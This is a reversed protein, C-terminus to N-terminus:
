KFLYSTMSLSGMTRSDNYITIEDKEDMAGLVYLLPYFHDPTYFALKASSGAKLYDIIDQLQRQIIKDKIYKDFDDAWPFGGTMGWNIKSLNHVVNGSALILVGKERLSRLERGMQYHAQGAANRDVSLQYLPIDAKPYMKCLVAWTGHDYGWTNDISVDRSMLKQTIHALDPAGPAPYKVEYLADPFGTMDYIMKPHAEDTVRSGQTYWHASISLIAQPRPIERAIREWSRTYANDEIANIPSGHGVFLAPM